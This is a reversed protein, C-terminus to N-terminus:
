MELDRCGVQQIGEFADDEVVTGPRHIDVGRRGKGFSRGRGTGSEPSSSWGSKFGM